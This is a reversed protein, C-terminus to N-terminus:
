LSFLQGLSGTVLALPTFCLVFLLVVVVFWALIDVIVARTPIQPQVFAERTADTEGVAPYIEEDCSHAIFRVCFVNLFPAICLPIIIGPFPLLSLIYLVLSFALWVITIVGLGLYYRVIGIRKLTKKIALVAFAQGVSGSRAFRIAGIIGYTVAYFLIVLQIVVLIIILFLALYSIPPKGSLLGSSGITYEIFALGMPVFLWVLPIVHVKIGDRLLLLWNDFEPPAPDGKMLRVIYGSLFFHCLLGTIILLGAENWPILSWHLTTGEIIKSSEVLSRLVLYPLALVVIILWRSWRGFLTARTFAASERIFYGVDMEYGTLIKHHM